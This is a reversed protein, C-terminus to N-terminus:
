RTVRKFTLFFNTHVKFAPQEATGLGLGVVTDSPLGPVSVAYSGLTNYMPFNSAYENPPKQETTVSLGGGVWRIEVPHGIVKNGGEDLLDIFISHGGGAQSENEWRVAILRWYSQGPRVGAPQVGVNLSALRPDLDRPPQPKGAPTPTPGVPAAASTVRKPQPTATPPVPTNTPLPTPTPLLPTNTIVIIWPTPTAQEGAPAAAAAGEVPAAAQEAAAEVPADSPAAAAEEAPASEAPQAALEGTGADVPESPAALMAAQPEPTETALPVETPVPTATQVFAIAGQLNTVNDAALTSIVLVPAAILVLWAIVLTILLLRVKAGRSLSSFWAVTDNFAAGVDAM